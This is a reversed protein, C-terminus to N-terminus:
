QNQPAWLRAKLVSTGSSFPFTSPLYLHHHKAPRIVCTTHYEGRRQQEAAPKHLQARGHAGSSDPLKSLAGAAGTIKPVGTEAHCHWPLLAREGVVTAAPSVLEEKGYFFNCPGDQM